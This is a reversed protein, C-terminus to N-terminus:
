CFSNPCDDLHVLYSAPEGRTECAALPLPQEKYYAIRPPDARFLYGKM